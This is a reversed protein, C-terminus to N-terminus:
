TTFNAFVYLTEVTTGTTCGSFNGWLWVEWVAETPTFSGDLTVNTTNLQPETAPTGAGYTAAASNNTFYHLNTCGGREAAWDSVNTSINIVANTTGTNDILIIGNASSQTNASGTVTGNIWQADQNTTNFEVNYITATGAVATTNWLGSNYLQVSVENNAGVNFYLLTSTYEVSAIVPISLALIAILILVIKKSM